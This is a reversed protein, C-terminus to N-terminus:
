GGAMLVNTELMALVLLLGLFFRGELHKMLELNIVEEVTVLCSAQTAPTVRLNHFAPVLEGFYPAITKRQVGFYV